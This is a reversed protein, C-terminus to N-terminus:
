LGEQPSQFISMGVMFTAHWIEGLLLSRSARDVAVPPGAWTARVSSLVPGGTAQPTPYKAHWGM